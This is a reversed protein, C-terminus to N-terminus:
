FAAGEKRPHQRLRGTHTVGSGEPVGQLWHVVKNWLLSFVLFSACDALHRLTFPMAGPPCPWVMCVLLDKRWFCLWVKRQFSSRRLRPAHKFWMRDMWCLRVFASAVTVCIDSLKLFGFHGAEWRAQFCSLAVSKLLDIETSSPSTPLILVSNLM